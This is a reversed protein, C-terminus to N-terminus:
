KTHIQLCTVVRIIIVYYGLILSGPKKNKKDTCTYNYYRGFSGKLLYTVM